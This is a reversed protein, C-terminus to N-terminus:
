QKLERLRKADEIRKDVDPKAKPYQRLYKDFDQQAKEAQGLILYAIGRDVYLSTIMPMNAIAQTFDDIARDYDKQKLRIQGRINYIGIGGPNISFAKEINLLAKPLNDEKEYMRALSSYCSGINMVQEMEGAHREAEERSSFKKESSIRAGSIATITQGSDNTVPQTQFPEGKIVKTKPNPLDHGWENEIKTLFQELYVIADQKHGKQYLIGTYGNVAAAFHPRIKIAMLLDKEAGETDGSIRKLRARANFVDAGEAGKEIALNYDALSNKFDGLLSLYFARKVYLASNSPKLEIASNLDQIAMQLNRALSYIHSRLEYAEFFRPNNEIAATLISIAGQLDNKNLKDTAEKLSKQTSQAILNLAFFLCILIFLSTTKTMFVGFM